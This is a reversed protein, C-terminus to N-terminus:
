IVTSADIEELLGSAALKGAVDYLQSM